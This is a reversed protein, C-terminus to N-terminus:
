RAAGHEHARVELPAAAVLGHEAAREAAEAHGDQARDLRGAEQFAPAHREDAVVGGDSREAVARVLLPRLHQAVEDEALVHLVEELHRQGEAVDVDIADEHDQVLPQTEDVFLREADEGRPEVLGAARLRPVDEEGLEQLPAAERADRDRVLLPLAAVQVDDDGLARLPGHAERLRRAHALLHRAVAPREQGEGRVLQEHAPAAGVAHRARQEDVSALSVAPSRRPRARRPLPSSGSCSRRPAASPGRARARFARAFAELAALPDAVTLAVPAEQATDGSGGAAEAGGGGLRRAGAGGAPVAWTR